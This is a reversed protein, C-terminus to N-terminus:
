GNGARRGAVAAGFVQALTACFESNVLPKTLRPAASLTVGDLDLRGYGTIVVFPIGAAQLAFAIPESNVGNLNADLLAGDLQGQQIIALAAPIDGVPGVPRGGNDEVLSELNMAILFEDDVILIRLGDLPLNGTM